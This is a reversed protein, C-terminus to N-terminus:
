YYTPILYSSGELGLPAYVGVPYVIFGFIWSSPPSAMQSIFIPLYNGKRM